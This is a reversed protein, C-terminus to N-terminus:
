YTKRGAAYPFDPERNDMELIANNQKSNSKASEQALPTDNL